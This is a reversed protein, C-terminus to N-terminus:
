RAFAQTRGGDPLDGLFAAEMEFAAPGEARPVLGLQQFRGALAPDNMAASAAAAMREVMPPPM